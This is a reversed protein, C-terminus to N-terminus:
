AWAKNIVPPFDTAGPMEDGDEGKNQLQAGM